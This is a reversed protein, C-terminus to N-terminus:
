WGRAVFGNPPMSARVSSCNTGGCNEPNRTTHALVDRVMTHSDNDSNNWRGATCDHHALSSDIAKGSVLV